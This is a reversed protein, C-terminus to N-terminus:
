YGLAKAVGILFLYFFGLRPYIIGLAGAMAFDYPLFDLRM